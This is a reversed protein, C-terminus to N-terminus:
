APAADAAEAEAGRAGRAALAAAVSGADDEVLVGAKWCGTAEGIARNAAQEADVAARNGQWGIYRALSQSGLLRTTKVRLAQDDWKPLFEEGIERWRGVGHKELGQYLLDREEPGWRKEDVLMVHKPKFFEQRISGDEAIMDPPSFHRRMEQVWQLRADGSAPAQQLADASMPM